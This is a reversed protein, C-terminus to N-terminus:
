GVLAVERGCGPGGTRKKDCQVYGRKQTMQIHTHSAGDGYITSPRAQSAGLKVAPYVLRTQVRSRSWEEQTHQVHNLELGTRVLQHLCNPSLSFTQAVLSHSLGRKRVVCRPEWTVCATKKEESGFLRPGRGKRRPTRTHTQALMKLMEMVNM